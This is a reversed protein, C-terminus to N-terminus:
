LWNSILLFAAWDAPHRHNASHLLELQARRLADARSLLPDELASYLGRVLAAAADDDVSWLSAVASRAGSKVAVGALGLAARDDGAATECASLIIMDLPTDRYRFAGVYEALEDMDLRGDWTVLFTDEPTAGFEAHTAIHVLRFERSGLERRITEERFDADLLLEGEYQRGVSRLEESVNALAEYGQVSESVGGLFVTLDSRDMPRPDALSLGPLTALAYREILHREGDHLAAMPISRLAGGPVFVLTKVKARELEEAIPEILWAHLQRAPRLYQRTTRKVLLERFRHITDILTREDVSVVTQRIGDRGSVLLVLRDPLIVPHIIAADAAASVPDRIKERYTDVCEDRFYDRLEDVKVREIVAQANLLDAERLSKGEAGDAHEARRLLLDAFEMQVRIPDAGLGARTAEVRGAQRLRQEIEAAEKMAVIAPGLEGRRHEIRGVGVTWRLRAVDDAALQAQRRAEDYLVLASEVEGRRDALEARYGLSWGLAAPDDIARAMEDVRELDAIAAADLAPDPPDSRLALALAARGLRLLLQANARDPGLAASRARAQEVLSAGDAVAGHASVALAENVLARLGLAEDDMSRAAAAALRYADRAAEWNGDELEISGLNSMLAARERQADPGLLGLAHEVEIRASARDGEAWYASGLAGRALAEFHPLKAGRALNRADILVPIAEASRGDVRLADGLEIM